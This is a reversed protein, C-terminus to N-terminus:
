QRSQFESAAERVGDDYFRTFVSGSLGYYVAESLAPGGPLVDEAAPGTQGGTLLAIFLAEDRTLEVTVSEPMQDDDLDIRKVKM